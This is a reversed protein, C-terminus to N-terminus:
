RVKNAIGLLDGIVRLSDQSGLGRPRQPEGSLRRHRGGGLRGSGLGYRGATVAASMSSLSASPPKGLKNYM